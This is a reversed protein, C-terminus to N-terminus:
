ERREGLWSRADPRFLMWVAGIQLVYTILGIIGTVSGIMPNRAMQAALALLGIAVLVVLIWKAVVSARRAIFFWLLLQIALGIFATGILFGPGFQVVPQARLLALSRDWSLFTNILGLAIAGLYLREFNVISAPRM